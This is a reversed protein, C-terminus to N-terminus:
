QDIIQDHRSISTKKHTGASDLTRRGNLRRSGSDADALTPLLTTLFRRTRGVFFGPSTPVTESSSSISATVSDEDVVLVLGGNLLSPLAVLDVVVVVGAGGCVVVCFIAKWRGLLRGPALRFDPVDVAKNDM